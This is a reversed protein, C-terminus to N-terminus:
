DEVAWKNEGYGVKDTGKQVVEQSDQVSFLKEQSKERNILQRVRVVVKILDEEKKETAMKDAIAAPKADSISSM